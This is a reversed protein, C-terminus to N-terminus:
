PRQRRQIEKHALSIIRRLQRMSMATLIKNQVKLAHAMMMGTAKRELVYKLRGPEYTAFGDIDWTVQDSKPFQTTRQTM